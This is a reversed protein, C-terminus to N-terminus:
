DLPRMVLGTLLKPYFYTSKQPMKEGSRSVRAVDAVTPANMLLAAQYIGSDVMSVAEHLSRTYKIHSQAVQDAESIGLLHRIVVSHLISVDLSRWAESRSQDLMSAVQSPGGELKLLYLRGPLYLGFVTSGAPLRNSRSWSDLFPDPTMDSASALVSLDVQEVTFWRACKRVFDDPDFGDLGYIVRHTPLVVLGPDHMNVFMMMAFDCPLEQGRDEDGLSQRVERRYDLSTEYRHHGDAILAQAGKMQQRVTSIAAPDTIAWLRNVTGTDDVATDPTLNEIQERLVRDTVGESDEFIGFVPSLNTRTSRLLLLRDAKPKSLTQEHPLIDGKGFEQLKVSAIFGLRSYRRDGVTFQQEYAYIAPVTDQRLVGQARWQRLFGAARTYRNDFEDDDESTKGLVLRVVNYESRRYLEDWLADGIVDYPPCTVADLSGVEQAAYRLGQFPRIDVM